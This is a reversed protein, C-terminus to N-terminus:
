RSWRLKPWLPRLSRHKICGNWIGFQYAAMELWYLGIFASLPLRPRLRRHDSIPAALMLVSVPWLLPSWVSSVALLPLSYYRVVNASLHYLSALHERLMAKPLNMSAVSIEVKRLQRYKQRFEALLLGILVVGSVAALPPATALAVLTILFLMVISPLPMQRRGEPHRQQLDAESSAYDARRRLLAILRVRHRHVVEGEPIYCARAGGRLTRWIFDVDEGLRMDASFGGQALLLQRRVVLNCTPLYAVIEKPGVPGGIVGMDLPSRVAEFATILGTPPLATVRGGVIGIDSDEFYPVLNLLWHHDAVCDNDIFALLDGQAESAALNRAASQGINTEQRLLRIPLGALAESLPPDSADDVVIIERKTVPYELKLLSEVCDRTAQSRGHAPVIISVMPWAGTIPPKRTLLRRRVLSDLFATADILPLTSIGAMAEAATNEEVLRSLLAFAQANLRMAMLPRLSLLVGGQQKPILELNRQLKYRAARGRRFVLTGASADQLWLGKGHLLGMIRGPDHQFHMPHTADDQDPPLHVFLTGGPRLAGALMGLVAELEPLHELVDIASILDFAESPLAEGLPDLFTAGLDRKSLRWRAYDQLRPNIEALTVELGHEALLIGLSGIGSGFDLATRARQVLATEVVQWQILASDDQALTHWWTLDYLYSDGNCYFETVAQSTAPPAARWTKALEAAAGRCRAEVQDVPQNLYEALEAVTALPPLANSPLGKM